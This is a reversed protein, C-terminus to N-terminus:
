NHNIINYTINITLISEIEVPIIYPNLNSFFLAPNEMM